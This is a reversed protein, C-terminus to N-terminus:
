EYVANRKAERSNSARLQAEEKAYRTARQVYSERGEAEMAKVTEAGYIETLTREWPPVYVEGVPQSGWSSTYMGSETERKLKHYASDPKMMGSPTKFDVGGSGWQNLVMGVHEGSLVGSGATRHEGLDAHAFQRLEESAAAMQLPPGGQKMKELREGSFNPQPPMSSPGPRKAAAPKGQIRVRNRPDAPDLLSATNTPPAAPAPAPSSGQQSTTWEHQLHIPAETYPTPISPPPAGQPGRPDQPMQPWRQGSHPVGRRSM